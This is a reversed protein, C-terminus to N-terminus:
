KVTLNFHYDHSETATAGTLKIPYTGAVAANGAVIKLKTSLLPTTVYNSLEAHVNAPFGIISFVISTSSSNAAITFPMVIGATDGRVVSTDKVGSVSFTNTPTTPTEEKKCSYMLLMAVAIFSLLLFSRTHKM